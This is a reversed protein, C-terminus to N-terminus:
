STGGKSAWKASNGYAAFSVRNQQASCIFRKAQSVTQRQGVLSLISADARIMGINLRWAADLCNRLPSLLM